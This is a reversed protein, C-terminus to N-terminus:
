QQDLSTGTWAVDQPPNSFPPVIFPRIKLDHARIHGCVWSHFQKLTKTWCPASETMLAFNLAAYQEIIEQHAQLHPQLLEDPMGLKEMLQAEHDFHEMLALGFTSLLEHFEPNRGSQRAAKILKRLCIILARHERDIQPDGVTPFESESKSQIEDAVM